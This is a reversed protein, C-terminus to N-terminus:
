SGTTPTAWQRVGFADANVAFILAALLVAALVAAGIAKQMLLPRTPAAREQGPGGTDGTEDLNRVGIPLMLFFSLWWLIIYIGGALIPDM